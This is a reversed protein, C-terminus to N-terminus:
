NGAYVILLGVVLGALAVYLYLQNDVFFKRVSEFM